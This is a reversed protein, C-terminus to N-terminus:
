CSRKTRLNLYLCVIDLVKGAFEPDNSFKFNEVRHPQLKHKKWIRQVTAPSVKQSAAMSRISWHTADKPTTHMTAELIATEREEPIEKPRGSRPCDELIGALGDSRFRRRWLFVTPLSTELNRTLVHNTIGEAAGLIINVRFLIGKPTGRHWSFALLQKRESESLILKPAAPLPM